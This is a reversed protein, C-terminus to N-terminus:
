NKMVTNLLNANKTLKYSHKKSTIFFNHYLIKFLGKNRKKLYKEIDEFNKIAVGM